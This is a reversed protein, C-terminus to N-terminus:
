AFSNVDGGCATIIQGLPFKDGPCYRRGVSDFDAHRMMHGRNRRINYTALYYQSLQISTAVQESTVGSEPTGIHEFTITYWNANEAGNEFTVAHEALWPIDMRPSRVEGNTWAAQASGVLQYPSGDRDIVWHSSANSNPNRLWNLVNSLSLDDAIHYVIAIPQHGQRSFFNPSPLYTFKPLPPIAV